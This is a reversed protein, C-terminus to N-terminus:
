IRSQRQPAGWAQRAHHTRLRQWLPQGKEKSDNRAFKLRAGLRLAQGAKVLVGYDRHSLKINQPHHQEAARRRAADEAHLGARFSTLNPPM